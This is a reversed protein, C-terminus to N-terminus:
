ENNQIIHNVTIEDADDIMLIGQIALRDARTLLLKNVGEGSQWPQYRLNSYSMHNIVMTRSPHTSRMAANEVKLFKRKNDDAMSSYGTESSLGKYRDQLFIKLHDGANIIAGDTNDGTTLWSRVDCFNAVHSRLRGLVMIRGRLEGVTPWMKADSNFDYRRQPPFTNLLMNRVGDSVDRQFPKGQQQFILLVFESQNQDIWNVVATLVEQLTVDLYIPGHFMGIFSSGMLSTAYGVRLDLVRVGLNLQETIDMRQAWTGPTSSPIGCYKTWAAADHTGPIALQNIRIEDKIKKLWINPM